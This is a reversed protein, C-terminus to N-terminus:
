VFDPLPYFGCMRQLEFDGASYLLQLLQLLLLLLLLSRYLMLSGLTPKYVYCRM